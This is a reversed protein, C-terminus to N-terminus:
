KIEFNGIREIKRDMIIDSMGFTINMINRDKLKLYDDNKSLIIASFDM